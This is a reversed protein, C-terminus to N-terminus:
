RAVAPRLRARRLAARHRRLRSIGGWGRLMRGLQLSVAIGLNAFFFNWVVLLGIGIGSSGIDLFDPVYALLLGTVAGGFLGLYAETLSRDHLGEMLGIAAILVILMVEMDFGPQPLLLVVTVTIAVMGALIPLLKGRRATAVQAAVAIGFFAVLVPVAVDPTLVFSFFGVFILMVGVAASAIARAIIEGAFTAQRRGDRRSAVVGSGTLKRDSGSGRFEDSRISALALVWLVVSAWFEPLWAIGWWEEPRRERLLLAPGMGGCIAIAKGGPAIAAGIIHAVYGTHCVDPDDGGPWDTLLGECEVHSVCEGSSVDFITSYEEAVLGIMKGDASWAISGGDACCRLDITSMKSLTRADYIEMAGHSLVAVMSGDPSFVPYGNVSAAAQAGDTALDYITTYDRRRTQGVYRGDASVMTWGFSDYSFSRAHLMRGTQLDLCRVTGDNCVIFVRDGDPHISVALLVSEGADIWSLRRGTATNWVGVTLPSDVADSESVFALMTRGDRSFRMKPSKWDLGEFTALRKEAQWDWISAGNKDCVVLRSGDPTFAVSSAKSSAGGLTAFPRWPKRHLWVAILCAVLLQVLILSRLSFRPM